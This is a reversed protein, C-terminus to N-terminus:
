VFLRANFLVVLLWLPVGVRVLWLWIDYTCPSRLAMSARTMSSTLAWGAFIASLIATIPLLMNTTLISFVDFMGFSKIEGFISFAFKWYGFSLILMLGLLWLLAGCMLAARTRSVNRSEVLWAVVPELLAICSMWAVLVLLVFFLVRMVGGLPLPDFAVAMVQFVLVADGAPEGGADFMLPLVVFAGLVAALVDAAVVMTAVRAISAQPPLYAGYMIMVGTGLGLSFFADGLATLIGEGSLRNFDPVLLAAAAPSFAGVSASYVALIVLLGLIGPVAYRVAAELGHRVGRAVVLLTMILFLSYWFLQKEPDRMLTSFLEGAGDVTLGYLAGSLARLVYALMWGGVVSFYALVLLGSMIALWGLVMWRQTLRGRRILAAIGNIPSKRELRGLLLQAMLLPIGLLCIFLVYFFIFAGGGHQVAHYPFRWISNLGIVGGAAALVFMTPSSWLGHMSKPARPLLVTTKIGAMPFYPKFREGAPYSYPDIGSALEPCM